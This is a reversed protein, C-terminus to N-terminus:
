KKNSIREPIKKISFSCLRHTLPLAIATILLPHIAVPRIIVTNIQTPCCTWLNPLFGATRFLSEGYYKTLAEYKTWGRLFAIPQLSAPLRNFMAHNQATFQRNVIQAHRVSRTQEECDIGISHSYSVAIMYFHTTHSVNFHIENGSTHTDTLYPKGQPTTKFSLAYPPKNCYTSLIQRTVRNSHGKPCDLRTWWIDITRLIM